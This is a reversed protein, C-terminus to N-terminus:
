KGGHKREMFVREDISLTLVGPEQTGDGADSMMARKWLHMMIRARDDVSLPRDGKRVIAPEDEEDRSTALAEDKPDSDQLDAGYIRVRGTIEVGHKVEVLWCGSQDEGNIESASGSIPRVVGLHGQRVQVVLYPARASGGVDIMLHKADARSLFSSVRLKLSTLGGYVKAGGLYLEVVCRKVIVERQLLIRRGTEDTITVRTPQGSLEFDLEPV